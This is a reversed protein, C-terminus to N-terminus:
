FLFSLFLDWGMRHVCYWLLDWGSVGVGVLRLDGCGPNCLRSRGDSRALWTRGMGERGLSGVLAFFFGGGM